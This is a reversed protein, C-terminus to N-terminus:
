WGSIASIRLLRKAANNFLDVKGDKRFAIIGISVHQVVTQLYNFHEEKEARTKKFDHIVENFARNLEKFSRGKGKDSFSSSFDSHRISDLFQTLKRNTREVFRILDIILLVDIIVMIAGSLPHNALRLLYITFLLAITLIVVRAIVGFRFSRYVM